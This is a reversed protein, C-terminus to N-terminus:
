CMILRSPQLQVGTADIGRGQWKKTLLDGVHVLELYCPLDLLHNLEDPLFSLFLGILNSHRRLLFKVQLLKLQHLLLLRFNAAFVLPTLPLHFHLLFDLVGLLQILHPELYQGGLFRRHLVDQRVRNLTELPDALRRRLVLLQHLLQQHLRHLLELLRDRDDLHALRVHQQDLLHQLRRARRVLLKSPLVRRLEGHVRGREQRRRGRAVVALKAVAANRQRGWVAADHAAVREVVPQADGIVGVQRLYPLHQKAVCSPRARRALRMSYTRARQHSCSIHVAAGRWSSATHVPSGERGCSSRARRPLRGICACKHSAQLLREKVAARPMRKKPPPHVRPPQWICASRKATGLASASQCVRTTRPAILPGAVCATSLGSVAHSCVHRSCRCRPPARGLVHAAPRAHRAGSSTHIHENTAHPCTHTSSSRLAQVLPKPQARQCARIPMSTDAHMAQCACMLM